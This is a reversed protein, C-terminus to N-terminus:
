TDIFKTKSMLIAASSPMLQQLMSHPQLHQDDQLEDQAFVSRKFLWLGSYRRSLKLGTM